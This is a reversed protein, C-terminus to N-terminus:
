TSKRENVTVRINFTIANEAYMHYIIYTNFHCMNSYSPNGHSSFTNNSSALRARPVMTRVSHIGILTSPFRIYLFNTNHYVAFRFTNINRCAGQFSRFLTTYPVFTP